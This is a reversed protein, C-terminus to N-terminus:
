SVSLVERREERRISTKPYVNDEVGGGGSVQRRTVQGLLERLGEREGAPHLSAAQEVQVRRFV